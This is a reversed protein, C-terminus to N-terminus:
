VNGDLSLIDYEVLLGLFRASNANTGDSKIDVVVVPLESDLVTYAPSVDISHWGMASSGVTAVVTQSGSTLATKYFTLSVTAGSDRYVYATVKKIVGGARVIKSLGQAIGVSTNIASPEIWLGAGVRALSPSSAFGDVAGLLRKRGTLAVVPDNAWAGSGILTEFRQRLDVKLARIEDDLTSAAVNGPVAENWPRTYPM